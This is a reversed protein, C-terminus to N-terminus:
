PENPINGMAEAVDALSTLVMAQHRRRGLEKGIELSRQLIAEAEVLREQTGLKVLVRGLSNLTQAEGYVDGVQHRLELSRRYFAEAAELREQGGLKSLVGGLSNLVMAQGRPNDLQREIELCQRYLVEAEELRKRGGLDVLVGGLSTLVMAVGHRDGLERLLKLSRRYLMEAEIRKKKGGLRVLVGGLSNLAMAEGHVDGVQPRLAISHRYLKEAEELRKRGGLEVLVSGLSNLVMAEGYHNGLHEEIQLSERLVTEARRLWDRKQRRMWIIGLLHGAIAKMLGLRGHEWVFEFCSEATRYDHRAYAYRGEFYVREVQYPALWRAQEGFLDLIGRMDALRNARAAQEGIELLREIAAQADLAALHYTIRWDLERAKPTNADQVRQRDAELHEKLYRHLALYTGNRRELRAVFYTRASEAFQWSKDEYPYVFPLQKVEAWVARATGDVNAFNRIIGYGLADDLSHPLACLETAQVVPQPLVECLLNYETNPNPTQRRM